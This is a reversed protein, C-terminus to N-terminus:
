RAQERRLQLVRADPDVLIEEPEFPSSIEVVQKDGAGLTLSVRAEQTLSQDKLRRREATEGDEEPFRVGRIAAVEVPMTGSGINEVSLRSRYSGDSQQEVVLDNLRYEPVVVDFYWQDVFSQFAEQDPAFPRLTEILDQLVPNDPGEIADAVFKQLGAIANDHGMLDHLMWMVWGGKDYTVTTDGARSGDIEVLPRESDLQRNEGYREEIRKSFEIREQMGQAAGMLLLTSYHSMGESLINGGPGQGPTVLNGWWQHAIEHATVMYALKNKPDSETLFGIQESFTINTPFGQAYSALGPFESIKLEQWPYPYFWESYFKKAAQMADAIEDINYDHGHHYFLAIGDRREVEFRGAVINFLKVPYDSEWVM